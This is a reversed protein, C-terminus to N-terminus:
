IVRRNKKPDLGPDSDQVAVAIADTGHRETRIWLTRSRGATTAMAEVANRILNYIVERLQGRNCEVLPLEATLETLATVNYESFEAHLSRLLELAIENVDIPWRDQDVNRVL